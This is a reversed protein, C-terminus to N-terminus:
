GHFVEGLKCSDHRHTDRGAQRHEETEQWRVEANPTPMSSPSIRPTIHRFLLKAVACSGQNAARAPPAPAWVNAPLGRAALLELGRDTHRCAIVPSGSTTAPRLAM